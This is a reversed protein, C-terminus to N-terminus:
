KNNAAAQTTPLALSSFMEKTSSLINGNKTDVNVKSSV